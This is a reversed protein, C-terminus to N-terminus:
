ITAKFACGPSVQFIIQSAREETLNGGIWAMVGLPALVRIDDIGQEFLQRDWSVSGQAYASLIRVKAPYALVDQVM